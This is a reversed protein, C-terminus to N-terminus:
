RGKDEGRGKDLDLITVVPAQGPARKVAVLGAAELDRLARGATTRAIGFRGLRSLNLKVTMSKKIFRWHWVELAVHIARGRVARAADLWSMPIPGALFPEKIKGRWASAARRGTSYALREEDPKIERM